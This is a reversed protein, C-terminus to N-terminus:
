PLRSGGKTTFTIRRSAKIGLSDAARASETDGKETLTRWRVWDDAKQIVLSVDIRDPLTNAWITMYDDSDPLLVDGESRDEDPKEVHLSEELDTYPISGVVMIDTVYRAMCSHLGPESQLSEGTPDNELNRCIAAFDTKRQAEELLESLAKTEEEEPHELPIVHRYVAYNCYSYFVADLSLRREEDMGSLNVRSSAPRAFRLFIAVSDDGAPFDSTCVFSAAETGTLTNTVSGNDTVAQTLDDEITALLREATEMEKQGNNATAWLNTAANLLSYLIGLIMVFMALAAVLEIMTLGTQRRRSRLSPRTM